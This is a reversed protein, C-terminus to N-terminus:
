DHAAAVVALVILYLALLAGAWIWLARRAFPGPRGAVGALSMGCTSCRADRAAVAAGCLPCMTEVPEARAPEASV